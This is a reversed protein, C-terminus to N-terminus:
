DLFRRRFEDPDEIMLHPPMKDLRWDRKIVVLDNTPKRQRLVFFNNNFASGLLSIRRGLEKTETKLAKLEARTDDIEKQLHNENPQWNSQIKQTPVQVGSRKMWALYIACALLIGLFVLAILYGPTTEKTKKYRIPTPKQPAPQSDSLIENIEERMDDWEEDQMKRRPKNRVTM